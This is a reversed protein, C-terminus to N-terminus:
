GAGAVEIETQLFSVLKGLRDEVGLGIVHSGPLMRLEITVVHNGDAPRGRIEVPISREFLSNRHEEPKAVAVVVRVEGRSAGGEALLTLRDLPLTIALPVQHRGNALPTSDLPRVSIGLPNDAAGLVLATMTREAVREAEPLARYRSRYRLRYGSPAGEALGVKVKHVKGDWGHAPRFGLSYYNAIELAMAALERAPKNANFIARGATQDALTFLPGRLNERRITDIQASPAFLRDEVEASVLSTGSLGTTDLAYFTVRHANALATLEEFGGTQDFRSYQTHLDRMKDPCLEGLFEYEAMAPVLELGDSMYLVYKRGPVGVLARTLGLLGAQATQVRATESQAYLELINLMEHWGEVCPDFFRGRTGLASASDVWRRTESGPGEGWGKSNFWNSWIASMADRTSTRDRGSEIGRTPMKAVRRLAARVAQPDDTFPSVLTLGPNFAVVLFRASGALGDVLEQIDDLVRNRHAQVLTSNDFYLVVTAPPAPPQAAAAPGASPSAAGAEPAAAGTGRAAYFNTLEVREGDEILEFDERELGAVPRGAGDTVVVDISVVNVEVEEGFAAPAPTAAEVVAGTEAAATGAVLLAPLLLVSFTTKM